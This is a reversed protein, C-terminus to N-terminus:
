AGRVLSPLEGIVRELVSTVNLMEALAQGAAGGLWQQAAYCRARESTDMADRAALVIVAVALNEYPDGDSGSIVLHRKKM